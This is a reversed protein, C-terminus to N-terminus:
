KAGGGESHTGAGSGVRRCPLAAARNEIWGFERARSELLGLATDGDKM